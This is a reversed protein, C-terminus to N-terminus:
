GSGTSAISSNVVLWGQYGKEGKEMCEDQASMMEECVYVCLYVSSVMGETKPSRASYRVSCLLEMKEKKEEGDHVNDQHLSSEQLSFPLLLTHRARQLAYMCTHPPSLHIPTCRYQLLHTHTHTHRHLSEKQGGKGRGRTCRRGVHNGHKRM